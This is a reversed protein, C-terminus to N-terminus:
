GASRAAPTAQTESGLRRSARYGISRRLGARLRMVATAGLVTLLPDLVIRFRFDPHTLYYPLPFFLLPLLLLTAASRNHQLLLVLGILGLLTTVTIHAEILAYNVEAGAGVWFHALRKTCLHLFTGPNAVIFAKALEAKHRMYAVEGRAAYDAYEQRNNLPEIAQNFFGSAGPHNGQWVEYGFNSRLPIFAHLVRENRIPWPAFLSAWVLLGILPRWPGAGRTQYAAWGAIAFLAPMLSPNVLMALACYAGMGVWMGRAPRTACRLAIAVMGTLCLTSFSTEWPVVPLWVVPPSIAWCVAALWAASAGAIREAIFLMAAVTLLGFVINLMMLAAAAALSYRGLLHFLLALLAPYGPALFASPGTSGGFPSSLGRGANLSDALFSLDPAKNFLWDRPYKAVVIWVAGLRLALAVTLIAIVYFCKTSQIDRVRSTPPVLIENM